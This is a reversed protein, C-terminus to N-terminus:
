SDTLNLSDAQGAPMMIGDFWWIEALSLSIRDKQGIWRGSRAVTSKVLRFLEISKKSMMKVQIRAPWVCCHAIYASRMSHCM